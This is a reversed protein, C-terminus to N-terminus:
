YASLGFMADTWQSRSEANHKITSYLAINSHSFDIYEITPKGCFGM